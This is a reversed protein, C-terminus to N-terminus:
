SSNREMTLPTTRVTGGPAVATLHSSLQLLDDVILDPRLAVDGSQSVAAVAEDSTSGGRVLVTTGVGAEHAAAMDRDPKDGVFWCDAADVGLARLAERPMAGDPKRRGLEDSYIGVAVDQLLGYNSLRDRVARGSVTNSVIAIRIGKHRAVEFLEVVGNRLSVRSKILAFEHSLRGSEAFLWARVGDDLDAGTLKEWLMRATIEPVVGDDGRDTLSKWEKHRFRAADMARAMADDTIAHGAHRLQAALNAAFERQAQPDKTSSSIVGGHDLLLARPARMERTNSDLRSVPRLERPMPGTVELDVSSEKLLDILQAPEDFVADPQENVPYPTRDTHQSRTLMVAAVGARRGAVLDRDHTDGVYWTRSPETGLARAALEIIGPHPKRIGVEDSYVQVAILDDLGHETLLARHSRGSHANSVIGVRVGLDRATELLERVGHRLHHESILGTMAHLLEAGDAALVGRPGDDLDSALFDNWIERPELELPRRRRGAANKWDKLAALGAGLSQEVREVEITWGARALKDVIAEAAHKRGQAHKSTLFVVGGFDLLLATPRRSLAPSDPPPTVRSSSRRQPANLRGYAPASLLVVVM